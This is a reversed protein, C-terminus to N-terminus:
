SALAKFQLQKTYSFGFLFGWCFLSIAQSSEPTGYLTAVWMIAIFAYNICQNQLKSVMQYQVLQLNWLLRSEKTIFDIFTESIKELSLTLCVLSHILMNIGTLEKFSFFIVASTSLLLARDAVCATQVGSSYSIGANTWVKSKNLYSLRKAFLIALLLSGSGSWCCTQQSWAPFLGMCKSTGM